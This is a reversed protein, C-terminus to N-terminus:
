KVGIIASVSKTPSMLMSANLTLGIKRQCDLSSFIERQLEIPLDGYGPSFRPRCTKGEKAKKSAIEHSFEDCLREIREAGIAQLVLAKLPYVRTYKSILRDIEFGVTAGFLVISECSDLNKALDRSETKAFSLDLTKGDFILPLERYCVKGLSAEKIEGICEDILKDLDSFDKPAGAYRRIEGKDFPYAGYSRVFIEGLM